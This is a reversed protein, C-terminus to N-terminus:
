PRYAAVSTDTEWVRVEALRAGTSAPAAALLKEMEEYFWRAMNEASPNLTDFPVVDNLFKHDM